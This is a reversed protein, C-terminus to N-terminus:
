NYSKSYKLEYYLKEILDTSLYKANRKYDGLHYKLLNKTSGDTNDTHIDPRDIGIIGDKILEDNEFLQYSFIFNKEKPYIAKLTGVKYFLVAIIIEGQNTYFYENPIDDICLILQKGEIAKELKEFQPNDYFSQEIIRELTKKNIEFDITNEWDWYFLAPIFRSKTKEMNIVLDNSKNQSEKFRIFQGKVLISTDQNQLETTVIKNFKKTSM